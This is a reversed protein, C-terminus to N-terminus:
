SFLESKKKLWDLEVTLQGIQRLLQDERQQVGNDKSERKDEFIGIMGSLLQKKWKVIQSSHVGYESTLQALTKNGKVAELAVMSKFKADFKRRKRAM